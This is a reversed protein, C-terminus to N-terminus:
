QGLTFTLGDEILGLSLAICEPVIERVRRGMTTISTEIQRDRGYSALWDLAMRSELVPQMGEQSETM